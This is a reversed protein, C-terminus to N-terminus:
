ARISGEAWGEERKRRKQRNANVACVSRKSNWPKDEGGFERQEMIKADQCQRTKVKELIYITCPM